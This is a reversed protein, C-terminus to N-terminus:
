VSLLCKSKRRVARVCERVTSEDVNRTRAVDAMSYGDMLLLVTKQQIPTLTKVFGETSLRDIVEEAVDTTDPVERQYTGDPSDSNVWFSEVSVDKRPYSDVSKGKRYMRDYARRACFWVIRNLPIDPDSLKRRYELYAM